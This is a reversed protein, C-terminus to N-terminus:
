GIDMIKCYKTSQVLITILLFRWCIDEQPHTSCQMAEVLTWQGPFRISCDKVRHDSWHKAIQKAPMECWCVKREFLHLLASRDFSTPIKKLSLSLTASTIPPHSFYWLHSNNKRFQSTLRSFAAFLKNEFFFGHHKLILYSLPKSSDCKGHKCHFYWQRRQDGLICLTVFQVVNVLAWYDHHSVIM